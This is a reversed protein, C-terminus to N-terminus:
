GEGRGSFRALFAESAADGADGGTQWAEPDDEWCRSRLWAVPGRVFKGRGEPSQAYAKAAEAARERDADDLKEWVRLATKKRAKRGSPFADWFACFAPPYKFPTRDERRKEERTVNKDRQARSMQTVGQARRAHQRKQSLVRAKATNSMHAEYQPFCIGDQTQVFWRVEQLAALLKMPVGTVRVVDNHTVGDVHGTETVEDAWCWLKALWGVVAEECLGTTAAIRMVKPHSFLCKRLKIWDGAM